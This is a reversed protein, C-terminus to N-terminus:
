SGDKEKQAGQLWDQAHLNQFRNTLLTFITSAKITPQSGVGLTVESLLSCPSSLFLLNVACALSHLSWITLSTNLSSLQM